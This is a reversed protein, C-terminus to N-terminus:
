DTALFMGWILVFASAFDQPKENVWKTVADPAFWAGSEIEDPHLVFPGESECRYIWCFEWGTEQRADIKFLRRPPQELNVRALLRAPFEAPNVAAFAFPREDQMGIFDLRARPERRVRHRFPHVLLWLIERARKNQDPSHKQGCILVSSVCIFIDRSPRSTQSSFKQRRWRRTRRAVSAQFRHKMQSFRHSFFKGGKSAGFISYNNQMFLKRTGMTTSCVARPSRLQSM